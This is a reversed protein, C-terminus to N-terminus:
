DEAENKENIHKLLVDLRYKIPSEIRDNNNGNKLIYLEKDIFDKVNSITSGPFLEISQPLNIGHFAAEYEEATM